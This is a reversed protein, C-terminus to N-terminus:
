TDPSHFTANTYNCHGDVESVQEIMGCYNCLKHGDDLKAQVYRDGFITRVGDPKHYLLIHRDFDMM